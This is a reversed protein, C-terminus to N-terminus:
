RGAAPSTRGAPNLAFKVPRPSPYRHAVGDVTVRWEGPTQEVEVTHRRYRFPGWHLRGGAVAAAVPRLELQEDLRPTFGVVYRAVLDNVIAAQTSLSYPQMNPDGTLSNYSYSSSGGDRAMMDVVRALDRAAREGEGNEALTNLITWVGSTISTDGGYTVVTPDLDPHDLSVSPYPFKAAFARPDDLSQIMAAWRDKPALGVYYPAFGSMARVGTSVGTDSRADCYFKLKADWLRANVEAATQRALRRMEGAKAPEGLTQYAEALMGRLAYLYSNVDAMLVPVDFARQLGRKTFGKQVPKWRLSYDYEDVMMQFPALITGPKALKRAAAEYQEMLPLSERLFQPDGNMRYVEWVGVFANPVTYPMVSLFDYNTRVARKQAQDVEMYWDFIGLRPEFRKWPHLYTGFYMSGGNQNIMRIGAEAITPDNLWRETVSNMPTNWSWQWIAGTKWPCTYPFRYPEFPIDFLSSRVVYFLHYYLRDLRPNATELRPVLATFYYDWTQRARAFVQEAPPRPEPAYGVSAVFELKDDLRARLRYGDKTEEVAGGSWGPTVCVGDEFCFCEGTHQFSYPFSGELVVQLPPGSLRTWRVAALNASVGIQERLRTAGAEWTRAVGDPAWQYDHEVPKLEAGAADLFRVVAGKGEFRSAKGVKGYDLKDQIEIKWRVPYYQFRAIGPKADLALSLQNDTLFRIKGSALLPRWNVAQRPLTPDPQWPKRPLLEAFDAGAATLGLSLFLILTRM